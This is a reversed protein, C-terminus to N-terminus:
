VDYLMHEIDNINVFYKTEDLSVYHKSILFVINISFFSDKCIILSNPYSMQKM